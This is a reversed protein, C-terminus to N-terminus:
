LCICREQHLAKDDNQFEYFLRSRICLSNEGSAEIQLTEGNNEFILKGNDATFFNM